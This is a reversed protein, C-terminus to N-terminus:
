DGTATFPFAMGQQYHSTETGDVDSVLNCILVYAGESLTFTGSSKRGPEFARITGIV